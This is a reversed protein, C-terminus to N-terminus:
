YQLPKFFNLGLFINFWLMYKMKASIVMKFHLQSVLFVQRQLSSFNLRYFTILKHFSSKHISYHCQLRVVTTEDSSFSEESFKRVFVVTALSSM